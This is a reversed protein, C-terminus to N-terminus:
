VISVQLLTLSLFGLSFLLSLFLPLSILLYFCQRCGASGKTQSRHFTPLCFCVHMNVRIYDLQDLVVRQTPVGSTDLNSLIQYPDKTIM